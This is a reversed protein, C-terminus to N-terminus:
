SGITILAGASVTEGIAIKLEYTGPELPPLQLNAQGLGVFGPALGLYHVTAEANGIWARVPATPRSLPDALAAAGTAVANDVAGTGTFYILIVSEPPAPTDTTNVAGDPNVAVARNEGFVLIGPARAAVEFGVIESTGGSSRVEV